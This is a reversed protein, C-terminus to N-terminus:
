PRANADEAEETKEVRAIVGVECGNAYCFSYVRNAIEDTLPVRKEPLPKKHTIELTITTKKM